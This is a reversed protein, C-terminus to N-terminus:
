LKDLIKLEYNYSSKKTSIVVTFLIIHFNTYFIIVKDKINRAENKYNQWGNEKVGSFKHNGSAFAWPESWGKSICWKNRITAIRLQFGNKGKVPSSWTSVCGSNSWLYKRSFQTILYQM